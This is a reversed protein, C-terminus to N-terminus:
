REQLAVQTTGKRFANEAFIRAKTQNADSTLLALFDEPEGSRAIRELRQLLERHRTQDNSDSPQSVGAGPIAQAGVRGAEPPLALLAALALSLRFKM